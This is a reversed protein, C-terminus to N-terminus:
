AHSVHRRAECKSNTLNKEGEPAYGLGWDAAEYNEV